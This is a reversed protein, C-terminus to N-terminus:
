ALAGCHVRTVNDADNDGDDGQNQEGARQKRHLLRLLREDESNFDPGDVTRDIAALVGM